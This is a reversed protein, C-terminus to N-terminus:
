PKIEDSVLEREHGWHEMKWFRFTRWRIADLLQRCFNMIGKQQGCYRVRVRWTIDKQPKVAWVDRKDPGLLEVRFVPLENMTKTKWGFPTKVQVDIGTVFIACDTASVLRFMREAPGSITGLLELRVPGPDDSRRSLLAGGVGFLLVSILLVWNRKKSQSPHM